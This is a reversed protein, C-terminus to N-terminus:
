AQMGAECCAAAYAGWVSPRDPAQGARLRNVWGQCEREFAAAFRQEFGPHSRRGLAGAFGVSAGDDNGIHVMGREAEIDVVGTVDPGAIGHTLRKIHDAGMCGTGIVAIALNSAM